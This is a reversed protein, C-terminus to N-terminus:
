STKLLYDDIWDTASKMIKEINCHDFNQKHITENFVVGFGDAIRTPNQLEKITMLSTHDHRVYIQIDNQNAGHKCAYRVKFKMNQYYRRVRLTIGNSLEVTPLKRREQVM